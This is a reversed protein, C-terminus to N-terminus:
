EVTVWKTCTALLHNYDGNTAESLFEDQVEKSVDARRMAKRVLALIFYANGDNGTLQVEIEPYRVDSM